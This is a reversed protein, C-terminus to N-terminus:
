GVFFFAPDAPPRAIGLTKPKMRPDLRVFLVSDEGHDIVRDLDRRLAALEIPLLWCEHVSKQGGTAYSRVVKLARALRRPHCIDYCVLYLTRRMGPIDAAAGTADAVVLKGSCHAMGLCGM